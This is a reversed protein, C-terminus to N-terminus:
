ALMNVADVLANDGGVNGPFVVYPMGPHRSENEGRWVPVGPLLQGLVWARRMKLAKTALDSSTIGGKAIVYRPRVRLESLLAVLGSSVRGGIALSDRADVGSVLERSTYVVVDTGARLQAEVANRARAIEVTQQANDLLRAVNLEVAAIGTALLANLQTTTKPVYSGVVILGASERKLALARADLLPRTALGLRMQVLSAASRCLLRAGRAEAQAIADTVIAMDSLSAANVVCVRRSVLVSLKEAVRQSGGSRIDTLSISAVDAARIRGGTKEQVWERVNSHHYGFAADRAFPTEAAPVLVDGEAVYHVDDITFRGGELFFPAILVGNHPGLAEDLADTEAPFHGRLTSDSRSIVSVKRGAALAALKLRLAADLTLARAEPGPMSRSNTLVYFAPTGARLERLLGDTSWDTLVPLDYVTQTGTPDDDFVVITRDALAAKLLLPREPPLTQFLSAKNIPPM